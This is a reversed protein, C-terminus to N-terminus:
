DGGMTRVMTVIAPGLMAIVASPLLCMTLPLTLRATIKGAVEELKLSRKRRASGAYERLTRGLSAGLTASQIIVGSLLRVEEVTVRDALKRFVESVTLGAELEASVVALEEAMEPDSFGIERGVRSIAQELNLGAEMCTVLLDLTPPLSRSMAEQRASTRARLWWEPGLFGAGLFVSTLILSGGSLGTAFIAVMSLFLGGFTSMARVVGFLDVADQNRLGARALKRRLLGLEEATDPRMVRALGAFRKGVTPRGADGGDEVWDGEDGYREFDEAEAEKELTRAKFASRVAMVVTMATALSVAATALLLSGGDDM